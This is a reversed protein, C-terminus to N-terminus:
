FYIENYKKLIFDDNVIFKVMESSISFYFLIYSIM